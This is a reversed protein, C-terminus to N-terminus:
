RKGRKQQKKKAEAAEEAQSYADTEVDFTRQKSDRDYWYSASAGGDAREWTVEPKGDAGPKKENEPANWSSSEKNAGLLAQIEADSFDTYDLKSFAISSIRDALFKVEIEIGDKEYRYCRAEPVDEDTWQEVPKGYRAACQDVTENIQASAFPAFAVLSAAFM